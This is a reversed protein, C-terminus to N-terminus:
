RRVRGSSIANGAVLRQELDLLGAHLLLAAVRSREPGRRALGAATAVYISGGSRVV